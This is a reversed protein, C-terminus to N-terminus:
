SQGDATTVLDGAKLADITVEGAPTLIRTGPMFCVTDSLFVNTGSGGDSVTDVFWGSTGNAINTLNLVTGDSLTVTGSTNGPGYPVHTVTLYGGTELDVFNAQARFTGVDLGQIRDTSAGGVGAQGSV